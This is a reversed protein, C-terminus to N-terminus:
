QESLSELFEVLLHNFKVPAALNVVHGAGEIVELRALPMSEALLRSANLSPEDEGGAVILAPVDLGRLRDAIAVPTPLSALAGRLLGSLGEQTHEMFGQRIMRAGAEDFGSQAGWVFREGAVELGEQEIAEAFVEARTAISGVAGAGAPMSALVLGRVRERHQLAFHLASAAGMSLGGVVASEGPAAHDLVEGIDAVLAALSYDGDRPVPSRAQGRADWTVVRYGERLARLQPRWNRASGAFGHALAVIPGTGAREVHLRRELGGTLEQVM